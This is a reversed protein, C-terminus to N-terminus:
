RRAFASAGVLLWGAILLIGGGPAAYPFLRSGLYTRAVLDGCFLALGVVLVVGGIRAICALSVLGLVLLASAHMLLFSAAVSLDGGGRHAAAASLGVGLAGSVGATCVLRRDQFRM